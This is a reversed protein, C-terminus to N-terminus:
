RRCNADHLEDAHTLRNIRGRASAPAARRGGHAGCAGSAEPVKVQGSQLQGGPHGRVEPVVRGDKGVPREQLKLASSNGGKGDWGKATEDRGGALALDRLDENYLELGYANIQM